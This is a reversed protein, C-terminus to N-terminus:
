LAKAKIVDGQRVSNIKGLPSGYTDILMQEHLMLVNKTTQDPFIAYWFTCFRRMEFPIRRWVATASQGATHDNFRSRIDTTHGIYAPTEFINFPRRESFIRSNISLIYVGRKNLPIHMKSANTFKVSSWTLTDLEKDLQEDLRKDLNWGKRLTM